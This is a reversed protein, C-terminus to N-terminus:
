CAEGLALIGTEQHKLTELSARGQPGTLALGAWRAEAQRGPQLGGLIFAEVFVLRGGEETGYWPPFYSGM